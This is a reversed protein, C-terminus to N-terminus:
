NLDSSSIFCSGINNARSYTDDAYPAMMSLDFTYTGSGYSRIKYYPIFFSCQGSYNYSSPTLYYNAEVVEGDYDISGLNSEDWVSLRLRTYCDYRDTIVYNVWIRVGSYGDEYASTNVSSISATIGYDATSRCGGCGLGGSGM